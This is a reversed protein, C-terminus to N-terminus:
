SFAVRLSFSQEADSKAQQIQAQLKTIHVTLAVITGSISLIGVVLAIIQPPTM